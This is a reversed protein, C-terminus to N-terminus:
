SGMNYWAHVGRIVDSHLIDDGEGDKTYGEIKKDPPMNAKPPLQRNVADAPPKRNSM